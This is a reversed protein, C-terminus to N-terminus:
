AIERPPIPILYRYAGGTKQKIDSFYEYAFVVLVDVKHQELHEKPFIPIHKGPSFKNQKLPSDDILYEILEPGVDGYNTITTVRAPCGYGAVRVGANKYEILKNRFATVSQDVTEKFQELKPVTLTEAEQQLMQTVRASVPPNGAKNKITVKLSGGHPEIEEVDTVVMDHLACLDRLSTLSYYFMRDLYFREFQIDKIINGIYEVEIIFAGDDAMLVKVADIFQHPDELHTFISSAVVVDPQGWSSKIQEATPTDFFATITPLGADNAIKSVNISPDVGLAKVGLEKLPKLLIGDNSGVDVVFRANKLQQALANFHRVLGPNVSSLYYYDEFMRSRSVLNSLQVNKCNTCFMVQLPVFDESAFDAEKPYKNALPQNGLNLIEVTSTSHCLLCGHSHSYTENAATKEATRANTPM